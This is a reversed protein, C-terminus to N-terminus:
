KEGKRSYINTITPTQIVHIYKIIDFIMRKTRNFNKLNDTYKNNFLYKLVWYAEDINSKNKDAEMMKKIKMNCLKNVLKQPVMYKITAAHEDPNYNEQCDENFTITYESIWNYNLLKLLHLYQKKDNIYLNTLLTLSSLANIKISFLRELLIKIETSFDTISNM